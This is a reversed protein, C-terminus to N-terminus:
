FHYIASTGLPTLILDLFSIRFICSDIIFNLYPNLPSFVFDKVVKLLRANELYEDMRSDNLNRSPAYILKIGIFDKFSNKFINSVSVLAEATELITFNNGDLDYM